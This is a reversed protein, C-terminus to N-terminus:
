IVNKLYIIIAQLINKANPKDIKSSNNQISERFQTSKKWTSVLMHRVDREITDIKALHLGAVQKFLDIHNNTYFNTSLANVLVDTLYKFGIYKSSIDLKELELMILKQLLNSTKRNLCINKNQVNNTIFTKFENIQPFVCYHQFFFDVLDKSTFIIFIRNQYNYCKKAFEEILKLFEENKIIIVIINEPNKIASFVLPLSNLEKFPTNCEILISYIDNKFCIDKESYLILNGSNYM